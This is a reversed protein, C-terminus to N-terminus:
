FTTGLNFRFTETIDTTSKSIPQALSFNMPGIVTLWDIGIGMSSRIEVGDSLSSDYDVGWLNAADLFLVLDINEANELVQPVTSSFNLATAFNGGIFDGGDKPGIKGNEFGRLNRSPIYIRESLKIDENTLSNASKLLLSMSSINNEYLETFVKYRYSNTVTNTDSIVPM